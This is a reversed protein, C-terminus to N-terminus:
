HALALELQKPHTNLVLALDNPSLEDDNMIPVLYRVANHMFLLDLSQPEQAYKASATSFDDETVNGSLFGIYHQNFRYARWLNGVAGRLVTREEDIASLNSLFSGFLVNPFITDVNGQQLKEITVSPLVAVHYQNVVSWPMPGAANAIPETIAGLTQQPVAWNIEQKQNM